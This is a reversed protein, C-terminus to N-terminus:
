GVRLAKNLAHNYSKIAKTMVAAFHDLVKM